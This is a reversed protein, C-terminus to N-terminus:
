LCDERSSIRVAGVSFIVLVFLVAVFYWINKEKGNFLLIYDYWRATEKMFRDMIINLTNLLLFVPLFLFINYKIKIVSSFAMTFAGLIGSIAGFLFTGIITYLYPSYIYLDSMFYNRVGNVYEVDYFGLNSLDGSANLPFALCNLAIELLFPVTYVVATALFAAALKSIKYTRQGIRSVMFVEQGLQHEKAMSFGAPCVVLLPYLQILLLTAGANYNVRNYSLLLLKMPHYMQLVDNGQFELVNCLFNTLVMFLLIYFVCITGKKKLMFVMQSMTAKLLM